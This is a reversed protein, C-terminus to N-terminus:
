RRKFWSRRAAPVNVNLAKRAFGWSGEVQFKDFNPHPKVLLDWILRVQPLDREDAPMAKVLPGNRMTESKGFTWDMDDFIIWGGPRLLREVLFFALGDVAWSHAGDLYCFDFRPEQSQELLRMLRWTYSTPEHYITVFDRLGLRTLNEDITPRKERASELDITTLAGGGMEQLAAAIYCSSVGRSFGLELCDRLNEGVLLQTLRKGQGLSMRPLDGLVEKVQEPKM